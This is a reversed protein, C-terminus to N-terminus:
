KSAGDLQLIKNKVFDIRARVKAPTSTNSGTILSIFEQSNVWSVDAGIINELETKEKLALAIGVSLAEFRVIPTVTRNKAILFGFEFNNEVFKLMSVFRHEYDSKEVLGEKMKQNMGELYEDFFKSQEGKFTSYEDSYAFFRLILEEPEHRTEVIKAFITLKKFTENKVCEQYIYDTFPGRYIGKRQEMKKLAIGGTNVRDFMMYRAEPDSQESLVIVKLSYNLFRKQRKSVFDSFKKGNLETLVILESLELGGNVFNDLTRIRQSGDVIELDGEKEEIESVDALFISPIPLGLLISEIFRSRTKNTWVFERQYDPIYITGNNFKNVIFEITFEKTDFDVEKQKELIQAEAFEFNGM